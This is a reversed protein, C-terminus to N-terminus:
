RFRLEAGLRFALTHHWTTGSETSLVRTTAGDLWEATVLDYHLRTSRGQLEAVAALRGRTHMTAAILLFPTRANRLRGAGIGASWFAAPPAYRLHLSAAADGHGREFPYLRDTHTGSFHFPDISKCDLVVLAATAELHVETRGSGYAMGGVLLASTMTTANGGCTEVMPDPLDTVGLGIRLIPIYDPNEQGAASHALLLFAAATMAVSRPLCRRREERRRGAEIM